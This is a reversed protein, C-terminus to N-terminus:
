VRPLEITFVAGQARNTASVNGQMHDKVIVSSMYLGLGTGKSPDKTTFYPEFIRGIVDEPIGGGNDAVEIVVTGDAVRFEFTILGREGAPMGGHERREMIAERANNVLNMIVHEFENRFGNVMKERCPVIDEARAFSKGHTSCTLRFDIDNASLQASFLSLVDGVAQMADFVAREKDPQFFTRFDDITKSMHRIQSMSKQVTQEISERNLEGFTHADKLNQIILGLINLPQRWQHAIAGLMEGMSALKSQQVLMQENARRLAVEQEVRDELEHTLAELQRTKDQLELESRKRETIDQMMWISGQAIDNPNVVRGTLSLWFTSGDRRVSLLETTYSEGALILPYGDQGVREYDSAYAYLARATLGHTEGPGYGFMREFAPNTWVVERDKVYAIGIPATNLIIQQEGALQKIKQEANRRATIDHVVSYLVTKGGSDIPGSYVEVDLITGDSRRHQFLFYSRQERRAADMERQIEEPALTNIESINKSRLEERSWGYFISAASNADLISGDDPDIVLSVVHVKEFLNRFREESVRLERTREEVQIELREHSERVRGIMNNFAASLLGVEDGGVAPMETKLSGSATIESVTRSLATLPGTLHRATTRSLAFMIFLTAVGILSYIMAVQRLPSLVDPGERTLLVEIPLMRFIGDFTPTRRAMFLDADGVSARRTDIAPVGDILLAAGYHEDVFRIDNSFLDRLSVIGVIVGETQGTPPFIVPVSAFLLVDDGSRVVEGHARGEALAIKMGAKGKAVSQWEQRNSVIPKGKYDCLVLTVPADVPVRHERLFPLLYTDRGLSDVLGNAIFSNKSLNELNRSIGNLDQLLRQEVLGLQSELGATINQVILVYVVRYSLFGITLVPIMILSLSFFAIRNSISASLWKRV